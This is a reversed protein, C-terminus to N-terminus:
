PRYSAFTAGDDISRQLGTSTVALIESGTPTRQAALAHPAGGISGGLLWTTGADASVAIRGDPAVAVAHTADAFAVLQLLVPTTVRSWSRGHDASRALGQESALLLTTGDPAAAVAHPPVPPKLAQWTRGDGTTALEDGDYGTIGAGSATLTHFDSRGQRSLATWTQGGDTSEILGVPNPLNTGAGPHGSAYFHNPGAVTFGMLDIVPGIRAPQAGPPLRFLGDHTALLVHGDAPNRTVAHVHASPLTRTGNAAEEGHEAGAHSREPASCGAAALLVATMVCIVPARVYGHRNRHMPM